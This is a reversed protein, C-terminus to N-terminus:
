GTLLSDDEPRAGPLQQRAAALATDLLVLRQAAEHVGDDVVVGASEVVVGGDEQGFPAGAVLM